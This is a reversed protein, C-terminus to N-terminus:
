NRVQASQGDMVSLVLVLAQTGLLYRKEVLTDRDYPSTAGTVAKVCLGLRHQGAQGQIPCHCLSLTRVSGQQQPESVRGVQFKACVWQCLDGPTDDANPTDEEPCSIVAKWNVAHELGAFM